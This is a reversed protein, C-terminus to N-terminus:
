INQASAYPPIWKYEYSVRTRMLCITYLLYLLMRARLQMNGDKDADRFAEEVLSSFEKQDEEMKDKEM